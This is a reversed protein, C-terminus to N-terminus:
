RVLQLAPYWFKMVGWRLADETLIPKLQEGKLPGHVALGDPTWFSNSDSDVLPADPHKDLEDRYAFTPFLDDSVRREFARTAGTRPDRLVLVRMSGGLNLPRQSVLETAVALPPDTAVVLVSLDPPADRTVRAPWQAPPPLSPVSEDGAGAEMLLVGTGPHAARWAAWTTKTVRIPEGFGIPTGGSTLRGTVSSIFQGYRRDNVLMGGAPTSVVELARPRLDRTINVAVARNAAASWMLLMRKNYDTVAVIPTVSLARCPFAYPYGEFMVGVVREDARPAAAHYADAFQDADIELVFHTPQASFRMAFLALVPGLVVLWRPALRNAIVMTLLSMCGILSLGVLLWQIRRVYVIADVGGDYRALSPRTGYALVAAALIAGFALAAPLLWARPAHRRRHHPRQSRGLINHRAFVRASASM